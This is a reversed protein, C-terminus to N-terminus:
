VLSPELVLIFRCESPNAALADDAVVRGEDAIDTPSLVLLGKVPEVEFVVVLGEPGRIRVEIAHLADEPGLGISRKLMEFTVDMEEIGAVLIVM